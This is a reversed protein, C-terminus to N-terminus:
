KKAMAASLTAQTQPGLLTAQLKGEPNFVLTVPLMDPRPFKLVSSPDDVLVPFTIDMKKTENKLTDVDVGDYNVGLLVIDNAKKHAKYFANLEPIEEHCPGCWTAWYNIIIWRGTFNKFYGSEGSLLTYDPKSCALLGVCVLVILGYHIRM